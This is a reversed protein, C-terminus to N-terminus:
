ARKKLFALDRVILVQPISTSLSALGCTAIFADAKYKKLALSVKVDYWWKYLLVNTPRPTLAVTTVNEPFSIAGNLPRDTFFIFEHEAHQVALRGFVENTFNRLDPVESSHLFRT